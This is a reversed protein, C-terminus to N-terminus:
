GFARAEGTRANIFGEYLQRLEQELKDTGRVGLREQMGPRRSLFEAMAHEVLRDLSGSEVVQKCVACAVWHSESCVPKGDGSVLEFDEAPFLYRPEESGCFDCRASGELM